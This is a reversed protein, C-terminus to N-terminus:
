EKERKRDRKFRRSDDKKRRGMLTQSLGDLGYGEQASQVLVADVAGVEDCHGGGGKTLARSM